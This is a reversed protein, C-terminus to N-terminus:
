NDYIINHISYKIVSKKWAWKGAAVLSCIAWQEGVYVGSISLIAEVFIGGFFMGTSSKIKKKM